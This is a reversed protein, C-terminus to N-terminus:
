SGKKQLDPFTVHLSFPGLASQFFVDVWLAGAPYDVRADSGRMVTPLGLVVPVGDAASFDAKAGGGVMNAMEAMTDAVDGDTVPAGDGLLRNAVAVATDTPFVLAIMGRVSGTFSILAIIGNTRVNDKGVSIDARQIEARLMTTFLDRTSRLFPNIYEAKM